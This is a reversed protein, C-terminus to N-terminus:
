NDLGFQQLLFKEQPLDIQVQIERAEETYEYNDHDACSQNAPGSVEISLLYSNVNYM